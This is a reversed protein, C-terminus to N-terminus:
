RREFLYPKTPPVRFAYEGSELRGSEQYRVSGDAGIEVKADIGMWRGSAAVLSCEEASIAGLWGGDAVPKFRLACETGYGRLDEPELEVFAGPEDTLGAWPDGDVFAFFDM